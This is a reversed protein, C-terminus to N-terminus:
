RARRLREGPEDCLDPQESLFVFDRSGRIECTILDGARLTGGGGVAVWSDETGDWMSRGRWPHTHATALDYNRSEVLVDIRRGVQTVAWASFARRQSSRLEESRLSKITPAIQMPLAAAPTGIEPSYEFVNVYRFYGGEVFDQLERFESKTEGPFGVIFATIIQASPLTEQISHIVKEVRKRDYPRNMARLLRDNVHQLPMDFYPLIREEEAILDLLKNDIFRPHCYNLRIWPIATARLLEQLLELLSTRPRQDIGYTLMEQAVLNLERAGVAEYGVAEQVISTITRSVQRGRFLPISCFSCGM